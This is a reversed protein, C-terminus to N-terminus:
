QKDTSDTPHVPLSIWQGPKIINPDHIEPNMKVIERLDEPRFKGLNATCLESLCQGEHVQILKTQPLPLVDPFDPPAVTKPLEASDRIKLLPLSNSVHSLMRIESPLSIPARAVTPSLTARSNALVSDNASAVRDGHFNSFALVLLITCLALAVSRIRIRPRFDQSSPNAMEAPKIATFNIIPAAPRSDLDKFRLDTLVEEIIDSGVTRRRLACGLSLANFCINNINRPVGESNRAILAVASNTFIPETSNDGSFRLRHQIYASTEEESLPQLHAFISVRQRLQLMQPLALKKELQPQGSLIIQILKKRSTEFNSLMRVAELVPESLNQAEDIAVVLRKGNTSLEVLLENLQSQMEVLNGSVEKVGLDILLARVLDGPTSITQFLFVTKASGGIRRLVEFLLTTKGMGPKATLAVFGLGSDLAYLIAALAEKHTSTGYLYRPDPTVGFPQERLNFHRLIV